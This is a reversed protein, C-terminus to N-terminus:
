ANLWDLIQDLNEERVCDGGNRFLDLAAIDDETKDAKKEMSPVVTKIMMIMMFKYIGHLKKLDFGGQLYFAKASDIKHKEIIGPLQNSTPGGMGVACVAKVDWTKAAKKYGVLAGASLWGLFIIEEGKALAKEAEKLEYAPLGTKQALLEAYKKTYGTNSRYVIAKM